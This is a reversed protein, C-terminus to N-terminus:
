FSFENFTLLVLFTSQERIIFKGNGTWKNQIEMIKEHNQLIKMDNPTAIITEKSSNVNSARKNENAAAMTRAYNLISTNYFVCLSKTRQHQYSSRTTSRRSSKRSGGGGGGGGANSLEGGNILNNTTTNSWRREMQQMLVFNKKERFLNAANKDVKSLAKSSVCVFFLNQKTKSYKM